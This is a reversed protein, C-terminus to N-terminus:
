PHPVHAEKGEQESAHRVTCALPRWRRLPLPVVYFFVGHRACGIQSAGQGLRVLTSLTNVSCWGMTIVDAVPASVHKVISAAVAFPKTNETVPRQSADTTGDLEFATSCIDVPPSSLGRTKGLHSLLM